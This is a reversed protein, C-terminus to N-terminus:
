RGSVEREYAARVREPNYPRPTLGGLLYLLLATREDAPFMRDSGPRAGLAKILAQPVPRGRNAQAEAIRQALLPIATSREQEILSQVFPGGRGTLPIGTPTQRTYLSALAEVAPSGMEAVTPINTAEGAFMARAAEGVQAPTALIAAAAPNVLKGGVAFTGRLYYPVPGVTEESFRQGERGLHAIGAAALPHELPMRLAYLSSGRVWPYFYIIRRVYNQEFPSLHGYDIMERNARNTVETLEQVKSEDTLLTKMQQPTRYGAKKAEYLFSARRPVRDVVASWKGAGFRAARGLPGGGEGGLASAIGEGMLEDVMALTEPDAKSSFRAADYLNKPAAFGQQVFNLAVNGLLNPLAYAPKLYLTQIKMANNLEDVVSIAKGKKPAKFAQEFPKVAREPVWFGKGEQALTLMEDESLEDGANVMRRGLDRMKESLSAAEKTTVEGRDANDILSRTEHGLAGPETRVFRWGTSTPPATRGLPRLADLAEIKGAWGAIELGHEGLAALVDPRELAHLKSKGTYTKTMSAPKRPQGIAGRDSVTVNRVRGPKRTGPLYLGEPNEFGEAGVLGTPEVRRKAAAEMVALRDRAESLAAGLREARASGAGALV